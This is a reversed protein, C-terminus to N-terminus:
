RGNVEAPAPNGNIEAWPSRSNFKGTFGAPPVELYIQAVQASRVSPGSHGTTIIIGLDTYDTIEAAELATVTLEYTQFAAELLNGNWTAITNAGDILTVNLGVTQGGGASKQAYMYVTHDTHIGPDTIDSFSWRGTTNSGTDDIYDTTIPTGTEDISNFIDTTAGAEDEWVGLVVDGDPVAIQNSQARTSFIAAPLLAVVLFYKYARM